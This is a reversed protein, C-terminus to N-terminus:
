TLLTIIESLVLGTTCSLNVGVVISGISVIGVGFAIGICFEVSFDDGFCNGSLLVLKINNKMHQIHTYIHIQTNHM